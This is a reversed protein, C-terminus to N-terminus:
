QPSKALLGQKSLEPLVEKSLSKAFDSSSSPNDTQTNATWVRKGDRLAWLSSEFIVTKDIVVYGPDYVSSSWFPGYPAGYFGEGPVYRPTEDVRHLRLVLAGDYGGRVLTARATDRDPLQDGFVTYSPASQVGQKALDAVFRDEILHRTAPPVRLGMVVVRKMPGAAYSPDKWQDTVSTPTSCAALAALAAVGAVRSVFATLM